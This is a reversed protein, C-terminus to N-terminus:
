GREGHCDPNLADGYCFIDFQERDHAALIPMLAYAAPHHHFDGLYGIRLKRDAGRDHNEHSMARARPRLFQEQWQQHERAIAAADFDPHYHLM